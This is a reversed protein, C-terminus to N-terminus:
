IRCDWQLIEKRIFYSSNLSPTIMAANRVCMSAMAEEDGGVKEAITVASEACQQQVQALALRVAPTADPYESDKKLSMAKMIENARRGM